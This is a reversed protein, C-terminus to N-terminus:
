APKFDHFESESQLLSIFYKWIEENETIKEKGLIKEIITRDKDIQFFWTKGDDSSAGLMYVRGNWEIDSYWGWDEYDPDPIEVADKTKERLWLLLSKGYIPNIPNEDEKSVDFKSTQFEIVPHM